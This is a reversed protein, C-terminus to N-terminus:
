RLQIGPWARRVQCAQAVGVRCQAVTSRVTLLLPLADGQYLAAPAQLRTLAADGVDQGALAAVDIAVHRALAAASVARADGTTQLGDSLLVLRTGGPAAGLALRLADEIDTQKADPVASLRLVGPRAPLPALRASGAFTVVGRAAGPPLTELAARLWAVERARMATTVSASRDVVFLVPAVRAATWAPQALAVILLALSACRLALAAPYGRLPDHRAAPNGRRGAALRQGALVALPVLLLLFLPAGLTLAM